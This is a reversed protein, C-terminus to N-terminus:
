GTITVIYIAGYDPWKGDKRQGQGTAAALFLQKGDSSFHHRTVRSKTDLQAIIKGDAESFLAANWSGQAQRGAMLFSKGDPTFGIAEMLGSGHEGDHIQTILRAPTERWGWRQWTMKGNGAMPDLMPGMGCCFLGAGDPSFALGYIGGLYHPSKIIGWSTFDSTKFEATLKGTALEWIRVEGMMNAAAVHRGDPSFATSLVPPRHEFSNLLDGSATDYIKVTPTASAAPEYNESGVLFQGTVSAVKRGDPSLALQWSWFDHASVRRIQRKSEVDHWRLCGDYGASILTKGDPLLVCGSAYSTHAEAFPTVSKTEPIIEFIRGDMCTAYVRSSDSNSALGLVGSALSITTTKELKM